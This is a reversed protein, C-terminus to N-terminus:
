KMKRALFGRLLVGGGLYFFAVLLLIPWVQWPILKFISGFSWSTLGQVSDGVTKVLNNVGEVAGQEAAQDISGQIDQTDSKGLDTQAATYQDETWIGRNLLDANSASIQADLSAQRAQEAAPDIGGDVQTTIWNWLGM